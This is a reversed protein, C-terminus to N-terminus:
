MKYVTIIFLLHRANFLATIYKLSSFGFTRYISSVGTTCKKLQSFKQSSWTTLLKKQVYKKQIFYIM